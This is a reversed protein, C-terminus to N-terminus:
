LCNSIVICNVHVITNNDCETMVFYFFLTNSGESGYLGFAWVGFALLYVSYAILIFLYIKFM